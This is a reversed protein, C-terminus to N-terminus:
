FQVLERRLHQPIVALLIPRLREVCDFRAALSSLPEADARKIVHVGFADLSEAMIRGRRIPVADVLRFAFLTCTQRM